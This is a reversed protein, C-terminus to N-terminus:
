LVGVDGFPNSETFDLITDDQTEFFENQAKKDITDLNYSEQILKYPTDSIGELLLNDGDELVLQYLLQDTTLEDEISDIDTYGTDLRESSYEFLRCKLKYVPLNQLQYFPEDHDVFSIEFLKNPTPFFVLDGENPRSASILNTDMSILQEWRRRAVVLTMEDRIELGFKTAIEKEGEMGEYTEVYMEILYADNFTSIADEGFLDDENVIKRPMYLVDQGFARLQEIVLDEYLNQENNTGTSFYVNTPM